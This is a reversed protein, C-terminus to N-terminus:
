LSESRISWRALGSPIRGLTLYRGTGRLKAKMFVLTGRYRIMDSARRRMAAQPSEPASVVVVLRAAVVLVEAVVLAEVVVVV